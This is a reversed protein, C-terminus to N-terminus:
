ATGRTASPSAPGAPQLAYAFKSNSTVAIREVEAISETASANPTGACEMTTTAALV